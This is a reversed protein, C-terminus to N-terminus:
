PWDPASRPSQRTFRLPPKVGEYGPLVERAQCHWACATAHTLLQFGRKELIPRSMEGADVTLFHAGRQRAEELRAGILATYIGRHRLEPVTSGGWLSAFAGGPRFRIWGCAAPTDGLYALYVSLSDPAHVQEYTLRDIIDAFGDGYVLAKISAVARLEDKSSVRRVSVAVPMEPMRLPSRLDLVLVSETEDIAFGHAALREVLDPPQDHSFAKWEFQQGLGGFYTVQQEIAADVTGSSLRSHIVVGSHGLLDVHRVLHPLEERRMGVDTASYREQDDYLALLAHRDLARPTL